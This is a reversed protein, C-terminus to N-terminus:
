GFLHMNTACDIRLCHPTDHRPNFLICLKELTEKLNYYTVPTDNEVQFVPEDGCKGSDYRNKVLATVEQVACLNSFECREM